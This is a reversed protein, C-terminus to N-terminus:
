IFKCCILLVPLLFKGSPVTMTTLPPIMQFPPIYKAGFKNWYTSKYMCLWSRTQDGQDGYTIEWDGAVLYFLLEELRSLRLLKNRLAALRPFKEEHSTKQSTSVHM